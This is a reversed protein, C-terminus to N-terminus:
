QRWEDSGAKGHSNQRLRQRKSQEASACEHGNTEPQMQGLPVLVLMNVPRQLVVMAVDVVLVVSVRMSFGIWRALRVAMPVAVLAQHMPVRVVRVQMMPM